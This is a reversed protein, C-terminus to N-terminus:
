PRGLRDVWRLPPTAEVIRSFSVTEALVHLALIVALAVALGLTGLRDFLAMGLMIGIVNSGADGLMARERLDPVLVGLCVGLTVLVLPDTRALALAAGAVLAGKLARGPAVDLLNVLNSCGAIVPVGVTARWFSSHSAAVWVAAAIVAAALKVVGTTVEGRSMARLHAVLGRRRSPQRDDLVGAAFVIALAVVAWLESPRRVRGAVADAIAGLALVVGSAGAVSWGLTLPLLVGRHNRTVPVLARPVFAISAGALAAAGLGQILDTGNM